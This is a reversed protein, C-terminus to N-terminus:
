LNSGAFTSDTLQTASSQETVLPLSFYFTAGQGAVSEFDIVGGHAEVIMKSFVLGLGSSGAKSKGANDVQGFKQFLRAKQDAPIGLGHDTVKIVAFQEQRVVNIEIAKGKSSFKIANSLVNVLVQVVRDGDAMVELTCDPVAITVNKMSALGRTVEVATELIFAVPVADMKMQLKGAEMQEIDLIDNILGLMIRCSEGARSLREAVTDSIDGAARDLILELTLQIASLPSRLDHTIMAALEKKQQSLEAVTASMERFAGDLEAIEDKGALAGLLPEGKAFRRTNSVVVGLRNATIRQIYMGFLLAIGFNVAIGIILFSKVRERAEDAQQPLRAEQQRLHDLLTHLQGRLDAFKEIAQDRLTILSVLDHETIAKRGQNIVQLADYSVQSIAATEKSRESDSGALTCLTRVDEPLASELLNLKAETDKDQQKAYMFLLQYGDVLSQTVKEAQATITRAREAKWADAEAQRILGWLVAVFWVQCLLPVAVLLMLKQSLRLQSFM